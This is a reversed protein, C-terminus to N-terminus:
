IKKTPNTHTVMRDRSEGMINIWNNAIWKQGRIVDCGGHYTMPDIGGVWGTTSDVYHNYWM